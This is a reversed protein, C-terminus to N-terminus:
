VSIPCLIEGFLVFLFALLKMYRNSWQGRIVWGYANRPTSNSRHLLLLSKFHGAGLSGDVGIFLRSGYLGPCSITNMTTAKQFMRYTCTVNLRRMTGAFCPTSLKRLSPAAQNISAALTSGFTNCTIADPKNEASGSRTIALRARALRARALVM